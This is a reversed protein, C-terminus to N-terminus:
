KGAFLEQLNKDASDFEAMLVDDSVKELVKKIKSGLPKNELVELLRDIEGAKRAKLAVALERLLPMVVAPDHEENLAGHEEMTSEWARIGETLEALQKAFGPLNERIFGIHGNKGAVELEVAKASVEAAGISASASKLAHVQTVFVPLADTNPTIQLMPLRKEADKCFLALVQRYLAMTGGCNAIGRQMLVGPIGSVESFDNPSTNKERM